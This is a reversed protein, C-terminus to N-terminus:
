RAPTPGIQGQYRSGLGETGYPRGVPGSLREFTIQCIPTFKPVWISNGVVWIELTLEGDFGPDILGANQVCIGERGISSKGEVRAAISSCLTIREVTSGLYFEGGYLAYHGNIPFSPSTTTGPPWCPIDGRSRHTYDLAGLRLDISVPQIQRDEPFPDIVIEGNEMAARIELDTMM